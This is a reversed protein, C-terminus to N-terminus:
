TALRVRVILVPPIETLHKWRLYRDDQPAEKFGPEEFGDIVFGNRFATNFIDQLSRHFYYQTEPQGLIGIGQWATPTLYHSIKVGKVVEWTGASEISEAFKTLGAPQFCPHMISFIFWGKPKLLFPLSDMLPDITTMDMLAMTAVAGDFRGEGLSLLQDKNTADAVRYEINRMEAPTRSKAREIFKESFDIGLVNAGLQAMRRGFRGAGCAVDLIALGAVDGLLKETAPEILEIQFDNGNGIKDDWFDANANWVRRVDDQSPGPQTM